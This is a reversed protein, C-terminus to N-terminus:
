WPHDFDDDYYLPFGYHGESSYDVESDDEDDDDYERDGDSWDEIEDWEVEKVMHKLATCDEDDFNTANHIVLKEVQHRAMQRTKLMTKYAALVSEEEPEETYERFWVSDLSLTKLNPLLLRIKPNRQRRKRGRSQHTTVPPRQQLMDIINSNSSDYISLETAQPISEFLKRWVCSYSDGPYDTISCVRVNELALAALMEVVSEPGMGSTILKFRPTKPKETSSAYRIMELTELPLIEDWASILTHTFHMSQLPVVPDTSWSGHLKAAIVPALIKAAALKVIKCDVQLSTVSASIHQLLFACGKATGSIM